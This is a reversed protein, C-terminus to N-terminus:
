PASIRSVPAARLKDFYRDAANVRVVKVGMHEAFMLTGKLDYTWQHYPCVFEKRNGQRERCFRMGRHACVNEVVNAFESLTRMRAM